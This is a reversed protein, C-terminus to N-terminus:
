RQNRLCHTKLENDIESQIASALLLCTLETRLLKSFREHPNVDIILLARHIIPQKSYATDTAQPSAPLNRILNLKRGSTLRWSDLHSVAKLMAHQSSRHENTPHRFRSCDSSVNRRPRAYAPAAVQDSCGTKM